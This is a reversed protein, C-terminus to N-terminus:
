RLIRSLVAKAESSGVAKRAEDLVGVEGKKRLQSALEKLHSERLSCFRQYAAELEHRTYSSLPDSLGTQAIAWDLIGRADGKYRFSELTANLRRGLSSFPDVMAEPLASLDRPKSGGQQELGSLWGGSVGTARSGGGFVHSLGGVATNITVRGRHEFQVTVRQAARGEHFIALVQEVQGQGWEPRRTHVVKEGVAFTGTEEM